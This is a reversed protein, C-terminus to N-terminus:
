VFLDKWRSTQAFLQPCSSSCLLGQDSQEELLAKDPDTIKAICQRDLVLDKHYILYKKFIPWKMLFGSKAHYAFVFTSITCSFLVKPKSVYYMSLVIGRSGLDWM